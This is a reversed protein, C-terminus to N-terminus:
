GICGNCPNSLHPPRGLVDTFMGAVFSSASRAYRDFYADSALFTAQADGLSLGKQFSWVWQTLENSTPERNLYKRYLNRVQDASSYSQGWAYPVFCVCGLLSLSVLTSGIASRGLRSSGM